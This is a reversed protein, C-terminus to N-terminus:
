SGMRKLKGAEIANAEAEKRKQEAVEQAAKVTSFTHEHKQTDKVDAIIKDLQLEKLAKAAQVRVQHPVPIEVVEGKPTMRKETEKGGVVRLLYLRLKKFDKEAYKRIRASLNELAENDVKKGAM